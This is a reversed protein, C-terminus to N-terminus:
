DQMHVAAFAAALRADVLLLALHFREMAETPYAHLIDGVAYHKGYDILLEGGRPVPAVFVMCGVGLKFETKGPDFDIPTMFAINADCGRLLPDPDAPDAFYAKWDSVPCDAKCFVRDLVVTHGYVFSFTVLMFLMRAIAMPSHQDLEHIWYVLWMYDSAHMQYRFVFDMHQEHMYDWDELLHRIIDAGVPAELFMGLFKGTTVADPEDPVGMYFEQLAFASLATSLRAAEDAGMTFQLGDPLRMYTGARVEQDPRLCLRKGHPGPVVHAVDSLTRLHLPPVGFTAFIVNHQRYNEAQPMLVDSRPFRKRKQSRTLYVRVIDGPLLQLVFGDLQRADSGDGTTRPMGDGGYSGDGDPKRYRVIVRSGVRMVTTHASLLKDHSTRQM